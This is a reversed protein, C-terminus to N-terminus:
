SALGEGVREAARAAILHYSRTLVEAASKEREDLALTAHRRAESSLQRAVRRVEHPPTTTDLGVRSADDQCDLLRELQPRVPSDPVTNLLLQLMRLEQLGHLAPDLEASEILTRAEHRMKRARVSLVGLARMAKIAQSRPLLKAGIMADLHRFGSSSECWEKLRVAGRAASDRGDRLGYTTILRVADEITAKQDTPLDLSQWARLRFAPIGALQAVSQAVTESIRGTRASEALLGSVAVVDALEAVHDSAIRDAIRQAATIPDPADGQNFRDAQTLVGLTNVAVASMRGAATHFDRLFEIDGARESERFAYLLADAEGAAAQSAEEGGLLARRTAADNVETLTALGPTDILALDRLAASQLYVVLRSVREVPVGLDDPLARDVLPLNYTTGDRLEVTARDPTGYRYWTVVRTCEGAATPAIRRGVLANVLTSKGASVIGVVALRLPEALADRVADIAPQVDPDGLATLDACLQTVRDLMRNGTM